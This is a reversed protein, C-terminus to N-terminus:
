LQTAVPDTCAVTTGEAMVTLTAKYAANANLMVTGVTTVKKAEAMFPGGQNINSSNGGSNSAVSFTYSGSVPADARVVALLQVM